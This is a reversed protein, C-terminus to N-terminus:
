ADRAVPFDFYRDRYPEDKLTFHWWEQPDDGWSQATNRFGYKHMVDILLRRMALQASSLYQYNSHSEKGMFDFHTGMDCTGDDIWPLAIDCITRYKLVPETLSENCKILTVDLTSGRAHSSTDSIYNKEFLEKRSKIEISYGVSLDDNSELSWAVMDKCASLPRYADYIVICYGQQQFAAHANKLALTAELTAIPQNAQYFKIPRGFINLHTAYRIYFRIDPIMENIYVFGDPLKSKMLQAKEQSSM